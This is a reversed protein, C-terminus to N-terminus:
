SVLDATGRGGTACAYKRPRGRGRPIGADCAQPARYHEPDNIWSQLSMRSWACARGGLHVPRPFTGAAIRRYLTPRSLTTIRLVDRVKFFAPVSATVGPGAESLIDAVSAEAMRRDRSGALLDAHKRRLRM